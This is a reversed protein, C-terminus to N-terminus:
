FVAAPAARPARSCQAYDGVVTAWNEDTVVIKRNTNTIKYANKIQEPFAPEPFAIQRRHHCCFQFLLRVSVLGRFVFLKQERLERLLLM